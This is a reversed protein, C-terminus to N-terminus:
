AEPQFETRNRGNEKAKYLAADANAIITDEGVLKTTPEMVTAGISVTIPISGTRTAVLDKEVANRLREALQHLVEQSCGPLVALFEEGGYRGISDYPRLQQELISAVKVLADDGSLHGFTDNIDKFHDIDIMLVGLPSAERASRTIERDLSMLIKARNNLKTLSDHTAQIELKKRAELLDKNLTIIREAARLRVRLEEIDFPKTIYDDAGSEMGEVLDHTDTKSTLLILYRYPEASLKRVKRCLDPGNMKPMMWDLIMLEPQKEKSGAKKEIVEWAEAGDEYAEVHYGLEELIRCIRKRTILDDEALLINM